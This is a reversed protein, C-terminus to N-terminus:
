QLNNGLLDINERVLNTSLTRECLHVCSRAQSHHKGSCLYCNNKIFNAEKVFAKSTVIYSKMKKTLINISQRPRRKMSERCTLEVLGSDTM